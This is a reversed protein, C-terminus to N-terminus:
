MAKNQTTGGYQRAYDQLFGSFIGTSSLANGQGMMNAYSQPNGLGAASTLGSRYNGMWNAALDQLAAQRNFDNSLRGKAADQRQLANLNTKQIAQWENGAYVSSPDSYSQNLLDVYGQRMRREENYIDRLENGTRFNNFANVLKAIDTLDFSDGFIQKWWDTGSSSGPTTTGPTTTGPTTTGPIGPVPVSTNVGPIEPVIPATGAPLGPIGSAPGGPAGPLDYGPLDTTPLEAPPNNFFDGWPDMGSQPAQSGSGNILEDLGFQDQGTATWSPVSTSIPAFGANGASFAAMQDAITGQLLSADTMASPLGGLTGSWAGYAGAAAAALAMLTEANNYLWGQDEGTHQWKVDTLNGDKDYVGYFQGANAGENNGVYMTQGFLPMEYSEAGNWQQNHIDYNVGRNALPSQAYRPDNFLANGGLDVNYQNSNNPDMSVGSIKYKDAEALIAQRIAEQDM